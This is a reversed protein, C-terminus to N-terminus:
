VKAVAAVFSICLFLRSDNGEKETFDVGPVQLVTTKSLSSEALTRYPEKEVHLMKAFWEDNRHSHPFLNM